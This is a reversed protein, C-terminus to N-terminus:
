PCPPGFRLADLGIDGSGDFRFGLEGAPESPTINACTTKWVQPESLVATMRWTGLTEQTLCGATRYITLTADLPDGGLRVLDFWVGIRTNAAILPTFYAFVQADPCSSPCNQADPCSSPCSRGSGGSYRIYRSGRSVPPAGDCSYPCLTLGAFCFDWGNPTGGMRPLLAMADAAESAEGDEGAGDTSADGGVDSEPTQPGVSTTDAGPAADQPPREESM